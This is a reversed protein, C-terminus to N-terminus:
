KPVKRHEWNGVRTIRIEREERQPSDKGRIKDDHVKM